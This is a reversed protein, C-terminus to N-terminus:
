ANTPKDRYPLYHQPQTHIHLRLDTIVGSCNWPRIHGRAEWTIRRFILTWIFTCCTCYISPLVATKCGTCVRTALIHSLSLDLSLPTFCLTPPTFLLIHTYLPNFLLLPLYITISLTSLYFYCLIYALVYFNLSVFSFVSFLFCSFCPSSPSTSVCTPSNSHIILFIFNLSLNIPIISSHFSLYKPWCQRQIFSHHDGSTETMCMYISLTVSGCVCLVFVGQLFSHCYKRKETRKGWSWTRPVAGKGKRWHHLLRLSKPVSFM